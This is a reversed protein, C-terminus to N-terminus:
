RSGDRSRRGRRAASVPPGVLRRGARAHRVSHAGLGAARRRIAAGRGSNRAPRRAASRRTAVGAAGFPVLRCSRRSWRRARWRCPRAAIATIRTEPALPRRPAPAARRRGAAPAGRPRAGASGRAPIPLVSRCVAEGEPEGRRVAGGALVHRFEVDMAAPRYDAASASASAPTGPRRGASGPSNVRRAKSPRVGEVQRLRLPDGVQDRGPGFGLAALGQPLHLAPKVAEILAPAAPQEIRHGMDLCGEIERVLVQRFVQDLADAGPERRQFRSRPGDPRRAARRAAQARPERDRDDARGVGALRAQEVTEGPPVRRDDGARAPVVRSTMSAWRSRAPQGTVSASM